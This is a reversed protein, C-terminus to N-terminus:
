DFPSDKGNPYVCTFNTKSSPVSTDPPIDQDYLGVIKANVKPPPIDDFPPVGDLLPSHTSLIEVPPLREGILHCTAGRLSESGYGSIRLVTRNSGAIHPNTEFDGDGLISEPGSLHM